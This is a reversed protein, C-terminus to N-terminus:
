RVEWRQPDDSDREYRRGSPPKGYFLADLPDTYRDSKFIGIEGESPVNLGLTSFEVRVREGPRLTVDPLARRPGRRFDVSLELGATAETRNSLNLLEVWGQRPDFAGMVIGPKRARIADLQQQVFGRRKTAFAKLYRPSDQFKRQDIWPDDACYPAILAYMADIRRHVEKEVFLEDLARQTVDVLRARLEPNLVIRSHLNSFALLMRPESAQRKRWLDEAWQDTLSFSYLPHKYVPSVGVGYTHWYRSDANNVDWPAYSWRGTIRDHIWYSKSDQVVNNAVLADMAMTRLYRELELREDAWAAFDPEPTRNIARLLEDLDASSETENTKKEWDRQYDTRMSRLKMECDKNGCRYINADGDLFKARKLFRKDIRELDVFVGEYRGNVSLRVFKARSAPVRMAALLDYALKEAMLSADQYEAILNLKRRGEFRANEGFDVRWSKKPWERSSAGRLRVTVPWSQGNHRFTAPQEELWVNKMFADFTRQPMELEYLPM